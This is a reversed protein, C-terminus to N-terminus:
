SQNTAEKWREMKARAKEESNVWWWTSWPTENWFKQFINRLFSRYLQSPASTGLVQVRRSYRSQLYSSRLILSLHAQVRRNLSQHQSVMPIGYPLTMRPYPDNRSTESRIMLDIIDPPQMYTQSAVLFAQLSRASYLAVDVIAAHFRGRQDANLEVCVHTQATQENRSLSGTDRSDEALHIIVRHADIFDDPSSTTDASLFDPSLLQRGLWRDEILRLGEYRALIDYIMEDSLCKWDNIGDM